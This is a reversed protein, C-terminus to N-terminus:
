STGTGKGNGTDTLPSQPCNWVGAIASCSLTSTGTIDTFKFLPSRYSTYTPSSTLNSSRTFTYRIQVAYARVCATDPCLPYFEVKADISGDDPKNSALTTPVIQGFKDYRYWTASGSGVTQDTTSNGAIVSTGNTLDTTTSAKPLYVRLPYWGAVCKSQAQCQTGGARTSGILCTKFCENPYGSSAKGSLDLTRKLAAPSVIIEALQRFRTELAGLGGARQKASELILNTTLILFGALIAM